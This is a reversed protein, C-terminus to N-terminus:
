VAATKAGVEHNLGVIYITFGFSRLETRREREAFARIGRPHADAVSGFPTDHDVQPRLAPRVTKVDQFRHGLVEARTRANVARDRPGSGGLKTIGDIYMM